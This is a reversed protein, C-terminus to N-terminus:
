IVHGRFGGTTAEQQRQQTRQNNIMERTQEVGYQQASMQVQKNWDPDSTLLDNYSSQTRYSSSNSQHYSSNVRNNTMAQFEEYKQKNQAVRAQQEARWKAEQAATQQKREANQQQIASIGQTIAEMVAATKEQDAKAEAALASLRSEIIRLDSNWSIEDKHAEYFIDFEVLISDNIEELSLSKLYSLKIPDGEYGYFQFLFNTSEQSYINSIYLIFLIPFIVKKM